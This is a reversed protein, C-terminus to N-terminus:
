PFITPLSGAFSVPLALARRLRSLYESRPIEVAGFQRVHNNIIQTDLLSFGRRRLHGVLHVLALKSANPSLSFMSEGFFGGGIAIGYLGGVLRDQIWTEISHATGMSNLTTYVDIIEDSIWTEEGGPRQACLHIVQPFSSDFRIQYETKKMFQRLSRPVRFSELPIVARPDPSYWAIQGIRSQAMPFYGGRYAEVVLQPTFASGEERKQEVRSM